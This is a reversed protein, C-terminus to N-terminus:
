TWIDPPIESLQKPHPLKLIELLTIKTFTKFVLPKPKAPTSNKRYRAM